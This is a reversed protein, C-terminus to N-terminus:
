KLGALYAGLAQLDQDNIKGAFSPMRSGPKHAQPNKIHEIIWEATHGPEAGVRTLDPGMRGGQGGISHCRACGQADYVAKGPLASAMAGGSDSPASSAGTDSKQCGAALFLVGLLAIGTTFISGQNRNLAL